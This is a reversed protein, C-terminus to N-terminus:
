GKTGNRVNVWSKILQYFINGSLLVKEAFHLEKLKQKAFIIIRRSRGAALRGSGFHGIRSIQQLSLDFQSPPLSPSSITASCQTDLYFYNVAHCPHIDTQNKKFSTECM